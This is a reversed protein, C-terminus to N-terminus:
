DHVIPQIPHGMQPVGLTSSPIMHRPSHGKQSYPSHPNPPLMLPNGGIPPGMPNVLTEGRMSSPYVFGQSQSVVIPMSSNTIASAQHLLLQKLNADGVSTLDQISSRKKEM